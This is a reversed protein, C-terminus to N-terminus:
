IDSKMVDLLDPERFTLFYYIFNKILCIGSM